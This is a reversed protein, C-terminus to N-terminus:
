IPELEPHGAAQKLVTFNFIEWFSVLNEQIFMTGRDGTIRHEIQQPLQANIIKHIYYIMKM